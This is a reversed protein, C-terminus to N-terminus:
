SECDATRMRERLLKGKPVFRKEKTDASDAKQTFDYMFAVVVALVDVLKEDPFLGLQRCIAELKTAALEIADKGQHTNPTHKIHTQHTNQHTTPTKYARCLAELPAQNNLDQALTQDAMYGVIKVMPAPGPCPFRWASDGPVRRDCSGFPAVERQPSEPEDVEGDSEYCYVHEGDADYFVFDEDRPSLCASAM